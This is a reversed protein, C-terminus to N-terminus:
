QKRSLMSPFFANVLGLGSIFFFIAFLIISVPEKFTIDGNLIGKRSFFLVLSIIMASIATIQLTKKWLFNSIFCSLIGIVGFIAYVEGQIISIIIVFLFPLTLKENVIVLFSYSLLLTFPHTLMNIIKERM